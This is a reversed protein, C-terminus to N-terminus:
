YNKVDNTLISIIEKMDKPMPAHFEMKTLTIPHYFCLKIAHLAQRNFNILTNKFLQSVGKPIYLSRGYLKDGLLPHKIYSMHVRIQHTRGTKLRLRIHTHARFKKIVHYYTIAPKGSSHVTMKKRKIINRAIPANIVGHFPIIGKAIAEYERIIEHKQLMTILNKHAKLTKAVIILGTTNKDLRHVIGARPLEIIHPYQYLLANLMTNDVNNIGPHVVFNAQKNIILIYNDEYLINLPLNQAKPPIQEQIETNIIIYEDGTMKTKPKNIIIDNITVNNNIIWQKICSRSYCPLQESLAKDLRKNIQFQSLKIQLQINKIM